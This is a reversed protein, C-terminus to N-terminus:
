YFILIDIIHLIKSNIESNILEFKHLISNINYRFTPFNRSSAAPRYSSFSTSLALDTLTKVLPNFFGGGNYIQSPPDLTVNPARREFIRAPRGTEFAVGKGVGTFDRSRFGGGRNGKVDRLVFRRKKGPFFSPWM